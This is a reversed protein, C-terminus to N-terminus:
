ADQLAEIGPMPDGPMNMYKAVVTKMRAQADATEEAYATLAVACALAVVVYARASM